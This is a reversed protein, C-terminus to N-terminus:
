TSSINADNKIKCRRPKSVFTESTLFGRFNLDQINQNFLEHPGSHLYKLAREFPKNERDAKSDCEYLVKTQKKTTKSSIYDLSDHICTQSVSSDFIPSNLCLDLWFKRKVEENDLGQSTRCYHYTKRHEQHFKKICLLWKTFFYLNELCLIKHKKKLKVHTSNNWTVSYLARFQSHRVLSAM